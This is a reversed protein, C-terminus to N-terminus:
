VSNALELKVNMDYLLSDLPYYMILKSDRPYLRCTVCGLSLMYYILIQYIDDYLARYPSSAHQRLLPPTVNLLHYYDAILTLSILYFLM